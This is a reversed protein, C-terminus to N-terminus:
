LLVNTINIAIIVLALIIGINVLTQSEKVASHKPSSSKVAKASRPKRNAVPKSIM